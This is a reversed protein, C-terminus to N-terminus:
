FTMWCSQLALARPSPAALWGHQLDHSVAWCKEDDGSLAGEVATRWCFERRLANTSNHCCWGSSGQSARKARHQRNKKEQTNGEATGVRCPSPLIVSGEPKAPGQSVEQLAMLSKKLKGREAAKDNFSWHGIIMLTQNCQHEAHKKKCTGLASSYLTHRQWTYIETDIQLGPKFDM